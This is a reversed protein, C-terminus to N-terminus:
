RDGAGHQRQSWKLFWDLFQDNRRDAWGSIGPVSMLVQLTLGVATAGVITSGFALRRGWFTWHPNM